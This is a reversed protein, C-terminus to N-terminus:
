VTVHRVAARFTKLHSEREANSERSTQPVYAASPPRIDLSVRATSGGGLYAHAKAAPLAASASDCLCGTPTCPGKQIRHRRFIPAAYCTDTTANASQNCPEYECTEAGSLISSSISRSVATAPSPAGDAGAHNWAVETEADCFAQHCLVSSVRGLASQREFVAFDNDHQHCLPAAAQSGVHQADRHKCASQGTSSSGGEVDGVQWSHRELHAKGDLTTDTNMGMNVGTGAYRDQLESAARARLKVRDGLTLVGLALLDADDMSVLAECDVHEDDATTAFLLLCPGIVAHTVM